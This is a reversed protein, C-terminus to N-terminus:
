VKSGPASAQARSTWAVGLARSAKGSRHRRGAADGRDGDFPLTLTVVTTGDSQMLTLACGHRLQGAFSGGMFPQVTESLQRDLEDRSPLGQPQPCPAAPLKALFWCRLKTTGRAAPLRIEAIHKGIEVM